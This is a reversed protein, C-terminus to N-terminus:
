KNVILDFNAPAFEENDRDMLSYNFHNLNESVRGSTGSTSVKSTDTNLIRKIIREKATNNTLQIKKKFTYYSRYKVPKKLVRRKKRRTTKRRRKTTKKRPSATDASASGPETKVASSVTKTKRKVTRRRKRRKFKTKRRKRQFTTARKRVPGAALPPVIRAIVSEIARSTMDRSANVNRRVRESFNTRAIVRRQSTEQSMSSTTPMDSDSARSRLNPRISLCPACFWDGEPILELPPNM